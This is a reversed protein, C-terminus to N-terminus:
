GHRTRLAVQPRKTEAPVISLLGYRKKLLEDYIAKNIIPGQSDCTLDVFLHQKFWKIQASKQQKGTLEILDGQNIRLSQM